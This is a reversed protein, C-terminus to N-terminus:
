IGANNILVDIRGFAESAASAMAEVDARVAVDCGV